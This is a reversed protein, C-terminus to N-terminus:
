TKTNRKWQMPFRSSLGFYQVLAEPFPIGQAQAM